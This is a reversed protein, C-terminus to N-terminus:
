ELGKIKIKEGDQNWAIWAAKLEDSHIAVWAEVLKRQKVPFKESGALIEGEFGIVLEFENYKAHVHPKNHKVGTEAYLYILIGYFSSILPM